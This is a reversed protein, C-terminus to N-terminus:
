RTGLKPIGPLRSRVFRVLEEPLCETETMRFVRVDRDDFPGPGTLIVADAQGFLARASEKWEHRGPRVVFLFLDARVLDVVSNSEIVLWLSERALREVIAKEMRVLVARSAGAALFRATDTDDDPNTEEFVPDSKHPHATIKAATWRLGPFARLVSCVVTTKGIGRAHGGVVLIGM